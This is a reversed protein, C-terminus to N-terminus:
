IRSSEHISKIGVVELGIRSVQPVQGVEDRMEGHDVNRKSASPPTREGWSVCHLLLTASPPFWIHTSLDGLLKERLLLMLYRHQRPRYTARSNYEDNDVTRM